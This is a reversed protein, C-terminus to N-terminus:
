GRRQQRPSLSALEVPESLGSMEIAGLPHITFNDRMGLADTTNATAVVGHLPALKAVRAALNVIPGYFDGERTLVEGFALGVRLPPLLPDGRMSDVLDVALACAADATDARFMVEDGIFKVVRGGGATITDTATREFVDLATNLDALSRNSALTTSGVLDAFGIALHRTDVGELASSLSVDSSPRYAQGLYRTLMHTLLDGFKTLLEAGVLNAELLQVGSEDDRLAPAAAGTLFASMTADGIRAVASASVRVIQLVADEGFLDFAPRLNQMVAVDHEAFTYGHPGPAALGSARAFRDVYSVPVDAREAVDAASLDQDGVAHTRRVAADLLDDGAERIEEVTMGIELCRRVLARRSPQDVAPDYLDAAELEADNM